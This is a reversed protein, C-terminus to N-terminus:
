TRVSPCSAAFAMSKAWSGSVRLSFAMACSSWSTMGEQCSGGLALPSPGPPGEGCRESGNRLPPTADIAVTLVLRLARPPQASRMKEHTARAAAASTSTTSLRMAMVIVLREHAARSRMPGSKKVDERQAGGSLNKPAAANMKPVSSLAVIATRIATGTLM